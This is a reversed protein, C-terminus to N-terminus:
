SRAGSARKFGNEKQAPIPGPVYEREPFLEPFEARIQIASTQGGAAVGLEGQRGVLAQIRRALADKM